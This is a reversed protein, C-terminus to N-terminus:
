IESFCFISSASGSNFKLGDRAAKFLQIRHINFIHCVLTVKWVGGQSTIFRNGDYSAALFLFSHSKLASLDILVSGILKLTNFFM